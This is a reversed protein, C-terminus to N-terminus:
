TTERNPKINNECYTEHQKLVHTEHTESHTESREYIDHRARGKTEDSPRLWYMSTGGSTTIGVVGGCWMVAGGMDAAKNPRVSAM